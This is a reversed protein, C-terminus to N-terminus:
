CLLHFVFSLIWVHSILEGIMGNWSGNVLGGYNGDAVERIIFTFNVDKAIEDILDVCFGQYKGPIVNGKADKVTDLFPPM